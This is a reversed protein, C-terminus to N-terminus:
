KPLDAKPDDTPTKAEPEAASAAKKSNWLEKGKAIAYPAALTCGIGVVVGIMFFAFREKKRRGGDLISRSAGQTTEEKELAKKAVELIQEPTLGEKQLENVIVAAEQAAQAVAKEEAQKNETSKDAEQMAFVPSAILLSFMLPLIKKM